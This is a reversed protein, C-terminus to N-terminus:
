DCREAPRRLLNLTLVTTMSGTQRITASEDFQGILPLLRVFSRPFSSNAQSVPALGWVVPLCPGDLLSLLRASPRARWIARV